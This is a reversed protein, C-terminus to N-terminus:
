CYMILIHAKEKVKLFEDSGPYNYKDCSVRANEEKDVDFMCPFLQEKMEFSLDDLCIGEPGYNDKIFSDLFWVRGSDDKRVEFYAVEKVEQIIGNVLSELIYDRRSLQIDDEGAYKTNFVVEGPKSNQLLFAMRKAAKGDISGELMKRVYDGSGPIEIERGFEDIMTKFSPRSFRTYKCMCIFRSALLRGFEDNELSPEMIGMNKM